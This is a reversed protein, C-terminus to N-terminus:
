TRYFKKRVFVLCGMGLLALTTPEPVPTASEAIDISNVYINGRSQSVNLTDILTGSGYGYSNGLVGLDIIMTKKQQSVIAQSWQSDDFVIQTGDASMTLTLTTEDKGSKYDYLGLQVSGVFVPEVFDFILEDFSDKKANLAHDRKGGRKGGTPPYAIVGAGKRSDIWVNGPVLGSSDGTVATITFLDSANVSLGQDGATIGLSGSTLLVTTAMVQSPRGFVLIITLLLLRKMIVGM